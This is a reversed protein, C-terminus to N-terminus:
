LLPTISRCTRLWQYDVYLRWQADCALTGLGPRSVPVLLPHGVDCLEVPSM